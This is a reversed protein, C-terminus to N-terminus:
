TRLTSRFTASMLLKAYGGEPSRTKAQAKRHPTGSRFRRNGGVTWFMDSHPRWRTEPTQSPIHTGQSTVPSRDQTYKQRGGQHSSPNASLGKLSELYSLKSTVFFLSTKAMNIMCCVFTADCQECIFKNESSETM